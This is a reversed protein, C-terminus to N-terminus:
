VKLVVDGEHLPQTWKWSNKNIIIKDVGKSEMNSLLVKKGADIENITLVEGGLFYMCSRGVEVSDLEDDRREKTVFRFGYPLTGDREKIDRSMKVAIATDWRDIPEITEEGVALGPSFFKVFHRRM